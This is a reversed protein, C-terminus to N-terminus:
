LTLYPRVVMIYLLPFSKSLQKLISSIVTVDAKINGAVVELVQPNCSVSVEEASEAMKKPSGCSQILLGAAVIMLVNFIKKM